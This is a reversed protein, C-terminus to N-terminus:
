VAGGKNKQNWIKLAQEAAIQEAAKKSKGTGTALVEDGVMVQVEFTREHSPGLTSKLEYTPTKRSTSQVVEQLRSKFDSDLEPGNQLATVMESFLSCVIERTKEFPADLYLAGIVAEFGSALLRPKQAGGSVVEGKGLRLSEAIGIKEAQAALSAENVLHARMKSLSGEHKEPFASMLYEGLILDLVADGLFELRENHLDMEPQEHAWSRHTLAKQLLEPKKFEYDLMM